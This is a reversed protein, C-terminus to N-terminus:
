FEESRPFNRNKEKFFILVGSTIRDTQIYLYSYKVVTTVVGPTVDRDKYLLLNIKINMYIYSIHIYIYIRYHISQSVYNVIDAFFYFYFIFNVSFLNRRDPFPRWIRLRFTYIISSYVLYM